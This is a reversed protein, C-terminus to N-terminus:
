HKKFFASRGGISAYSYSRADYLSSVFVGAGGGSWHGGRFLIYEGKTSDVYCYAGPEGAFLALERMRESEGDLTVSEWPFGNCDAQFDRSSTFVIGADTVSAYLPNGADDRIPKWDDGEETLDTSRLAADNNKAAQLAGNHIRMGRAFEWINGCLDHVGTPTHDHTWAAPGSGTLTKSTGEIIVGKESDDGHWKGWKTNGHPLTGLLLSTNALLGWEPATLCHWGEGKSFCPSGTPCVTPSGTM